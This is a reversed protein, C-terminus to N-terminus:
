EDEEDEGADCSIVNKLRWVLSALRQSMMALIRNLVMSGQHSAQIPQAHRSTTQTMIGAMTTVTARLFWDNNTGDGDEGGVTTGLKIGVTCGM